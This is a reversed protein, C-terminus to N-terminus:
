PRGNRRPSCKPSCRCDSPPLQRGRGGECARQVSQDVFEKQDDTMNGEDSPLAGYAQGFLKLVKKAHRDGFLDMTAWNLDQRMEVGLEAMFRTSAM